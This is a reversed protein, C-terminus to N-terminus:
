RERKIYKALDSVTMAGNSMARYVLDLNLKVKTKEIQM